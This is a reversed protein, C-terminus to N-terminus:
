FKCLGPGGKKAIGAQGYFCWVCNSNPKPAFRKDTFMPKVRKEWLKKLKPIDDRTYVLEKEPESHPTRKLGPTPYVTPVDLYVLRPRVSKVHPHLLLGALAYLELQEVYEENKEERFKGTKWDTIDLDDPNENGSCDLKIRVWCGNWDNWVTREWSKTLAWDDEVTIGAVRSKYQKRLEKFLDAFASLEAPVKVPIEAKIYKEATTHILNGREMAANKPEPIKDLASLKFALPCERYKSYRSFSWSKLKASAEPGTLLRPGTTKFSTAM